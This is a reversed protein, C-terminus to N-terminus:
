IRVFGEGKSSLDTRNMVADINFNQRDKEDTVPRLAPPAVTSRGQGSLMTIASERLTKGRGM